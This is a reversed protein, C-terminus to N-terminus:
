AKKKSCLVDSQKIIHFYTIGEVVTVELIIAWVNQMFHEM